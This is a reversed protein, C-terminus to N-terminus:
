SATAPLDDRRAQSRRARRGRRIWARDSGARVRWRAVLEDWHATNSRRRAVTGTSPASAPMLGPARAIGKFRSEGTKVLAFAVAAIEERGGLAYMPLQPEDPRKGMWASTTCVGTKYDIIVHGGAALRDMRDLKANVTLGGFTVPHKEEIAVVEFGDRRREVALWEDALRM